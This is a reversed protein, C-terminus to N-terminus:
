VRRLAAWRLVAFRGLPGQLGWPKCPGLYPLHQRSRCSSTDPFSELVPDGGAQPALHRALERLSVALDQEIRRAWAMSPGQPGMPPVRENWLHLRLLPDGARVRVGDALETPGDASCREARLLCRPVTSYEYIGLRHRLWRDLGWIWRRPRLARLAGRTSSELSM